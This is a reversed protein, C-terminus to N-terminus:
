ILLTHVNLSNIKERKLENIAHTVIIEIFHIESGSTVTVDPIMRGYDTNWVVEFETSEIVLSCILSVVVSM